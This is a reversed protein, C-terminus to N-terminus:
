IDQWGFLSVANGLQTLTSNTFTTIVVPGNYLIYFATRKTEERHGM